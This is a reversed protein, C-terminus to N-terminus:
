LGITISRGNVTVKIQRDCTGDGYDITRTPKGNPTLDVIGSVPFGCGIKIKLPSVTAGTYGGGTSFTADATGTIEYVDDFRNLLTNYGETWTRVRTSTYNAIMGDTMTGTGNISINFYPQGQNNQGMNEVTKTGEIKVDNVFYDEPTHTIVTGTALYPGTFTTIIKGRRKKGDNCDCNETGYDVTVTKPFATTDLTIIVNCPTKVTSLDYGPKAFIVKGSKYFVMNGTVAQDSINTMEDFASEIRYNVLASQDKRLSNKLCSNLSLALLSLIVFNKM